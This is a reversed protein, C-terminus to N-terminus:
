SSSFILIDDINVAAFNRWEALVREMLSQFIAPANKRGFPMRMFRFKGFPCVFTTLNTSDEDMVVQHFGKSLDLKSLVSSQGVKGLIDDLCPIYSQQQPTVLYLKRFDVCLRKKGNPKAVPVLPSAWHSDSPEIINAKILNDLEVLVAEKLRDPLRSPNQSIVKTGEHIEIKM